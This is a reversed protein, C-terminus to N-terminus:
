SLIDVITHLGEEHEQQVILSLGEGPPVQRPIISSSFSNTELCICHLQISAWVHHREVSVACWFFRSPPSSNWFDDRKNGQTTAM